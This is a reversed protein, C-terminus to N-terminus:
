WQVRGAEAAAPKERQARRNRLNALKSWSGRRARVHARRVFIEALM